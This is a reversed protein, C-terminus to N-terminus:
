QYDKDKLIKVYIIIILDVAMILWLSNLAKKTIEISIYINTGRSHKISNTCLEFIMRIVNILLVKDIDPCEDGKYEYQILM